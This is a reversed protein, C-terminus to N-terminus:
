SIEVGDPRRWTFGDSYAMTPGGVDDSVYLLQGISEPPPLNAKAFVPLLVVAGRTQKTREFVSLSNELVRSLDAAWVILRDPNLLLPLRIPM